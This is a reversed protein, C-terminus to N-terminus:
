TLVLALYSLTVLSRLLQTTSPSFPDIGCADYTDHADCPLTQIISTYMDISISCTAMSVKSGHGGDTM